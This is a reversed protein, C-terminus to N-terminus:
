WYLRWRSECAWWADRVLLWLAPVRGCEITVRALAGEKKVTLSQSDIAAKALMVNSGGAVRTMQTGLEILRAELVQDPKGSFAFRVPLQRSESSELAKQILGLRNEPISVQLQWQGEPQFTSLLLDGVAVPRNLLRNRIDWSALKGGERARITLESLQRNLLQLQESVSTNDIQLQELESEKQDRQAATLQNGRLLEGRLQSRRAENAIQQGTLREIENQLDRDFLKVLVQGDTIESEPEVLVQEVIAQRPAYYIQRNVPVLTANASFQQPIPILSATCVLALAIIGFALRKQTTTSEHWTNGMPLLSGFGLQRHHVAAPLAVGGLTFCLSKLRELDPAKDDPIAVLVVVRRNADLTVRILQQCGLQDCLAGAKERVEPDPHNELTAIDIPSASTRAYAREVSQSVLVTQSRADFTQLGSIRLVRPKHGSALLLVQRNGCLESIADVLVQQRTDPQTCAVLRAIWRDRSEYFACANMSARLADRRLFEAMLDGMQAVFRLYGRQAAPGGGSQQVVELLFDIRDQIRVPVVLLSYASPNIPRDSNSVLSASGPPVLVPSGEALVCQLIKQHPQSPPGLNSKSVSNSRLESPLDKEAILQLQQRVNVSDSAADKASQLDPSQAHAIQWVAAAPAGMTMCLRPLFGSLFESRDLPSQALEAIETTLARIEAKTQQVSPSDLSAAGAPFEGMRSGVFSTSGLMTM